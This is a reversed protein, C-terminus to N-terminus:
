EIPQCPVIFDKNKILQGIPSAIAKGRGCAYKAIACHYGIILHEEPTFKSHVNPAVETLNKPVLM